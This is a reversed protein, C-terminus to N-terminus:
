AVRLLALFFWKVDGDQRFGHLYGTAIQGKEDIIEATRDDTLANMIALKDFEVTIAKEYLEKVTM